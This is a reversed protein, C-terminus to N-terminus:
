YIYSVSLLLNAFAGTNKGTVSFWPGAIFQLNESPNYEIAPAISFVYGKDGGLTAQTGADTLGPNGTYTTPEFSRFVFDSAFVWNQKISYEFSFDLVLENGPQVRADTGIGGGYTNYEHVDFPPTMTFQVNGRFQVPHDLWFWVVKSIYFGLLTSYGGGGTADTGNKRPDLNQYKGLPFTEGVVVRLAPYKYTEKNLQFGVQLSIDNVNAANRGRNWTFSAAPILSLDWRNLLGTQLVATPQISFTDPVSRVHRKETYEAYQTNLFVYPQVVLAGPPVNHASAALLPGSYYPKFMKKAQAYESQAQDIQKQIEEPSVIKGFLMTTFCLSLFVRKM